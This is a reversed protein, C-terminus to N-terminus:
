YPRRFKTGDSFESQAIQARSNHLAAKLFLVSAATLLLQIGAALLFGPSRVNGLNTGMIPYLIITSLVGTVSGLLYPRLPMCAAGLYLSGIDFPVVRVARLLTAFLFDSGSRLTEISELGPYKERLEAMSKAGIHKGLLYPVLAMAMTGCVNVLIAAPLPFLIGSAAYLIGSYLVVTLSKLAFFGILVLAAPLPNGPTNNILADLTISDRHLLAFVIVAAWILAIILKGASFKGPAKERM